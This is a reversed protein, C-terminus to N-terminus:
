AELDQVTATKEKLHLLGMARYVWAVLPALAFIIYRYVVSILEIVFFFSLALLPPILREYPDVYKTVNRTMIREIITDMSESGTAEIKFSTLFERRAEELLQRQAASLQELAKQQLVARQADLQSNLQEQLEASVQPAGFVPNVKQLQDTIQKYAAEKKADSDLTETIQPVIFAGFKDTAVLGLFQDLTMSGTYGPIQKPLYFDIGNRAAGIMGTRVEEATKGSDGLSTYYCMSVGVLLLVLGTGFGAHITYHPQFKRRSAVDGAINWSWLLFGVGTIAAAGLTAWRWPFFPILALSAAVGTTASIWWRARKAAMAVVGFLALTICFFVLSVVFQMAQEWPPLGVLRRALALDLTWWFLIAFGVVAGGMVWFKWADPKKETQTPAPTVPTIM